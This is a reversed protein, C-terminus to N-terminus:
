GEPNIISNALAEAYALAADLNILHARHQERAVAYSGDPLTQYDRGHPTVDVFANVAVRLADAAQTYQRLLAEASTGNLNVQPLMIHKTDRAM